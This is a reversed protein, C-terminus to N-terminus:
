KSTIEIRIFHLRTSTLLLLRDNEIALDEISEVSSGSVIDSAHIERVLESRENFWLLSGPTAVVLGDRVLCFGRAEHFMGAGIERVYQGFYDFEFLRDPELVYVHDDPSILIKLPQRIRARADDIGGFSREYQMTARFKVVRLNEGDLIFLDGFRSLAVGLPSGFRAASLSTDRTIFSSIFNLSRDFRMLRHNGRDAVYVNLGDTAFGTPQDFTTSSWGYGGVTSFPEGGSKSLAVLDQEADIIYVWGQPNTMLRTARHFSGLAKEEVFTTDSADARLLWASLLLLTIM